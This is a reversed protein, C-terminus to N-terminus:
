CGGGDEDEGTMIGYMRYIANRAELKLREAEALMGERVNQEARDLEEKEAKLDKMRANIYAYDDISSL